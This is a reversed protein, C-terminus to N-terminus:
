PQALFNKWEDSKEANKLIVLAKKAIINIKKDKVVLNSGLIGPAIRKIESRSKKFIQNVNSAFAVVKEPL